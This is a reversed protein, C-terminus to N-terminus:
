RDTVDLMIKSSMPLPFFLATPINSIGTDTLEIKVDASNLGPLM